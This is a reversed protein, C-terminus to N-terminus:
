SVDGRSQRSFCKVTYSSRKKQMTSREKSEAFPKGAELTLITALDDKNREMLAFMYELVKSRHSATTKRWKVFADNAARSAEVVDLENM